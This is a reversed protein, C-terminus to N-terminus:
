RCFGDIEARAPVTPQDLTKGSLTTREVDILIRYLFRAALGLQINDDAREDTSAIDVTPLSRDWARPSHNAHGVAPEAIKLISDTTVVGEVHHVAGRSVVPLIDGSEAFRELVVHLTHDPHVHVFAQGAISSVFSPGQGSQLAM